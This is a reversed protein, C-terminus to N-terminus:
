HTHWFGLIEAFELNKAGFIVLVSGWNGLGGNPALHSPHGLLDSDVGNRTRRRTKAVSRKREAAGKRSRVDGASGV